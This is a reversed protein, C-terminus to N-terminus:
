PIWLGMLSPLRGVRVCDFLVKRTDVRMRSGVTMLAVEAVFPDQPTDYEVFPYDFEPYGDVSAVHRLTM